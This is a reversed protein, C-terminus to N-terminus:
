CHALTQGQPRNRRALANGPECPRRTGLHWPLFSANNQWWRPKFTARHLSPRGWGPISADAHKAMPPCNLTRPSRRITATFPGCADQTIPVGALGRIAPDTRRAGHPSSIRDELRFSERGSTKPNRLILSFRSRPTSAVSFADLRLSVTRRSRLFHGMIPLSALGGTERFSRSM